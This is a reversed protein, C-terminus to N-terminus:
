SYFSKERVWINGGWKEVGSGERIPCGKHETEDLFEGDEGLNPWFVADGEKPQTKIDLKSFHTAGGDEENVTNLYIFFTYKRNGAPILFQTHEKRFYDYHYEYQQGEAYHVINMAEIHKTTVGTIDAIKEFLKTIIVDDRPAKGNHTIFATSSTRGSDVIKKGNEILTSPELDKRGKEILYQCEDHTLFNKLYLLPLNRSLEEVQFGYKDEVWSRDIMLPTNMIRCFSNIM